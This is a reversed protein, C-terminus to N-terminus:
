MREAATKKDISNALLLIAGCFLLTDFFYNLAVVDTPAQLLMPLYIWLVALLITLGLLTAAMRTKKNVLLCVGAVILVIGVCYSLFIRGPIWEPTLKGLPVGPVNAPHMLNEVGYFLSAIGVFFRPFAVWAASLRAPSPERARTSWPSMAFAFAGGSFALERLALTWFFRNHSNVVVAPIDMVFVFILWTMGLLAAALRAQVLVAISLAACLFGLGVLYVWFTHAPIWRPVLTAIDATATFHESAFVAMPVAFFLRGFPMIKDVGHEQPLERLIKIFGIIFLLWACVYIWFVTVPIGFKSGFPSDKDIVILAFSQTRGRPASWSLESFLDRQGKCRSYVNPITDGAFSGRRLELPDAAQQGDASSCGLQAATVVTLLLVAWSRLPLTCLASRRSHSMDADEGNVQGKFDLSIRAEVAVSAWNKV